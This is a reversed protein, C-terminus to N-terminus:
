HSNGGPIHIRDLLPQIGRHGPQSLALRVNDAQLFGFANVVRKRALRELCETVIDGHVPLLCEVAHRQQRFKWEVFDAVTQRAVILVVMGTEHFRDDRRRM